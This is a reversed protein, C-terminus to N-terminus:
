ENEKGKKCRQTNYDSLLCWLPKKNFLVGWWIPHSISSNSSHAKMACAHTFVTEKGWLLQCTNMYLWLLQQNGGQLRFTQIGFTSGHLFLRCLTPSNSRQKFPAIMNSCTFLISGQKWLQIFINHIDLTIITATTLMNGCRNNMISYTNDVGCQYIALIQFCMLGLLETSKHGAAPPRTHQTTLIFCYCGPFTITLSVNCLLICACEM